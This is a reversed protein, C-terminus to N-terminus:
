MNSTLITEVLKHFSETIQRNNHRYIFSACRQFYGMLSPCNLLAQIAANMYCSNGLNYLGAVGVPYQLMSSRTSKKKSISGNSSISDAGDENNGTM